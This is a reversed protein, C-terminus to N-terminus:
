RGSRPRTPMVLECARSLPRLTSMALRGIFLTPGATSILSVAPKMFNRTLMAPSIAMSRDAGVGTSGTLSARRMWRPSHTTSKRGRRLNLTLCKFPVVLMGSCSNSSRRSSPGSPARWTWQWVPNLAAMAAGSRARAPLVDHEDFVVEVVSGVRTESEAWGASIEYLCVVGVGRQAAHGAGGCGDTVPRRHRFGPLAESPPLSASRGPSRVDHHAWPAPVCNFHGSRWSLLCLERVNKLVAHAAPIVLALWTCIQTNLPGRKTTSNVPSM